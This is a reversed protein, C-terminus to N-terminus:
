QEEMAVLNPRSKKVNSSSHKGSPFWNLRVKLLCVTWSDYRVMGLMPFIMAALLMLTSPSSLAKSRWSGWFMLQLQRPPSFFQGM